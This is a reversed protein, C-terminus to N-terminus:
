YHSIHGTPDQGAGLGSDSQVNNDENRIEYQNEHLTQQWITCGVLFGMKCLTAENFPVHRTYYQFQSSSCPLIQITGPPHQQTKRVNFINWCETFKSHCGPTSRYVTQSSNAKYCGGGLFFQILTFYLWISSTSTSMNIGNIKYTGLFTGLYKTKIEM